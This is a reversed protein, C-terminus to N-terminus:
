AVRADARATLELITGAVLDPADWMPVHGTGALMVLSAGPIQEALGAGFIAFPLVRDDSPWAIRVPCAIGDLGRIVGDAPASRLIGRAVACGRVARLIAATDAASLLEPHHMSRAGLARRLVPWAAAAGAVPAICRAAAVGARLGRIVRRLDRETPWWAAPAIATVSLARDRKALELAIRGGLSNGAVHAREIGLEDLARVVGDVLASATAPTGAPLPPGGHHGPLTLALVDHRQSLSPIVPQWVQWSATLGHLLLLPTGAGSRHSASPVVKVM